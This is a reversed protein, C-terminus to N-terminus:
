AAVEVAAEAADRAALVARGLDAALKAAEEITLHVGLAPYNGAYGRVIVTPGHDLDQHTVEIKDLEAQASYYAM